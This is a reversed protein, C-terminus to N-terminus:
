QFDVESQELMPVLTKTEALNGKFTDFALPIGERDVVLALVVQVSHHKQDKSFGFDRLIM